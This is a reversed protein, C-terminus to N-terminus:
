FLADGDLSLVAFEIKEEETLNYFSFYREARFIWGDPNAGVFMPLDM